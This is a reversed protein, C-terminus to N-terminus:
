RGGERERLFIMQVLSFLLIIVLLIFSAASAYGFEQRSFAKEYIYLVTTQTSGAPGGGTILLNQGFIKFSAITQLMLVLLSVRTLSPLTVHRFADWGNAGDIRAAEYLSDPIDQLGALFLIFNVGVTWWLTAILISLWAMNPDSLWFLEQGLGLRHLFSNVTGTYPQLLVVWVSSVVSVSLIVPFFVVSRFVTRGKRLGHAVLALVLGFATLAPVSMLVFRFTHLLSDRFQADRLLEKYNDFGVYTKDGILSWEFLSIRFGHMAPYLMFLVFFAMYPLLMAYGTWWEARKHLQM